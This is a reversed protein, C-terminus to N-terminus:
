GAHAAGGATRYITRGVLQVAADTHHISEAHGICLYGGPALIQAFRNILRERTPQDFYIMVNRCLIVDFPGRMPWSHHLNLVRFTVANRLHEKVIM